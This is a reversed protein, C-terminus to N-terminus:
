GRLNVRVGDQVVARRQGPHPPISDGAGSAQSLITRVAERAHVILLQNLTARQRLRDLAERHRPEARTSAMLDRLRACLREKEETVSDLALHDMARLVQTEREHLAGLESLVLDLESGIPDSASTM